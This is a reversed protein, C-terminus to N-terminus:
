AEVVRLSHDAVNCAITGDDTATVIDEIRASSCRDVYIGPEISSGDRQAGPTEPNSVRVPVRVTSVGQEYAPPINRHSSRCIDPPPPTGSRRM